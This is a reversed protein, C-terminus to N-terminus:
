TSARDGAPWELEGLLLPLDSRIRANGGLSTLFPVWEKYNVTVVWDSGHRRSSVVGPMGEPTQGSSGFSVVVHRPSARLSDTPVLEGNAGRGMFLMHSFRSTLLREDSTSSSTYLVTARKPLFETLVDIIFDKEVPNSLPALSDQLLLLDPKHCLAVLHRAGVRGVPSLEAVTAFPNIRFAKLLGNERKTDWTPYLPKLMRLFTGITDRTDLPSDCRVIGIRSLVERRNEAPDSGMVRVSGSAPRQLGAHINIFEEGVADCQCPVWVLMKKELRYSLRNPQFACRTAMGMSQVDVLDGTERQGPPNM